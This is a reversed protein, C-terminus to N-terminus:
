QPTKQDHTKRISSFGFGIITTECQVSITPIHFMKPLHKFTLMSTKDSPNECGTTQPHMKFPM